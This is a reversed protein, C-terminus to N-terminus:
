PGRSSQSMEIKSFAQRRGHDWSLGIGRHLSDDLTDFRRYDAMRLAPIRETLIEIEDDGVDRFYRGLIEITGAAGLDTLRKVADAIAEDKRADEAADPPDRYKGIGLEMSLHPGDISHRFAIWSVAHSLTVFSEAPPLQISPLNLGQSLPDPELSKM